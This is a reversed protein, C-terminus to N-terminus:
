AGKKKMIVRADLVLVGDPYVVVPNLDMEIIEEFEMALQSVESLIKELAGFDAVPGGRYGQLLRSGKIQRIMRGAEAMDFPAMRFSVDKIIETFIGGLGFAVVPGFQRDATVGILVETGKKAMPQLTVTAEPDLSATKEKMGKYAARLHAEDGLNLAVGGCDSKHIIKPSRIKLVVPYGLKGALVVAEEENRAVQCPTVPIGRAALIAKAEDEMLFDRDESRVKEIVEPIKM